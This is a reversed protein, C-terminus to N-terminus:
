LWKITTHKINKGAKLSLPISILLLSYKERARWVDLQNSINFKVLFILSNITSIFDRLGNKKFRIMILAQWFNQNSNHVYLFTKNNDYADNPGKVYFM